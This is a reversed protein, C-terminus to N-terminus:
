KSTFWLWSGSVLNVHWHFGMIGFCWFVMLFLFSIYSNQMKVGEPTYKRFPVCVGREIDLQELASNRGNDSKSLQLANARVSLLKSPNRLSIFQSNNFQSKFLYSKPSSSFLPSSNSISLSPSSNTTCSPSIFEMIIMLWILM